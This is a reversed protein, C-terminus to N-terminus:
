SDRERSAQRVVAMFLYEAWGYAASHWTPTGSGERCREQYLRTTAPQLAQTHASHPWRAEYQAPSSIDDAHMRPRGTEDRM